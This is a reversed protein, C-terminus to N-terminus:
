LGVRYETLVAAVEAYTVRRRLVLLELAKVGVQPTVLKRLQGLQYTLSDKEAQREARAVPDHARCFASGALPWAHCHIRETKPGTQADCRRKADTGEHARCTRQGDELQRGCPAPTLIKPAPCRGPASTSAMM